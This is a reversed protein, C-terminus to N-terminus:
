SAAPSTLVVRDRGATKGAYLADDARRLAAGFGSADALDAIGATFTLPDGDIQVADRVRRRLRDIPELADEASTAPLVLLFEEGGWRAALDTARSRRLVDAFRQLVQDGREHGHEDNFRKFHDIDLIALAAPVAVSQLAGLAGTRNLLGTLADHNALYATRALLRARDIGGAVRNAVLGVLRREAATLPATRWWALGGEEATSTLPWTGDPPDEPPIGPWIYEEDGLRTRVHSAGLYRCLLRSTAAGLEDLDHATGLQESADYLTQLDRQRETLERTVTTLKAAATTYRSVDRLAVLVHPGDVGVTADWTAGEVTVVEIGTRPAGFRSRLKHWSPATLVTALSQTGLLERAAGNRELEAADSDFVILADPVHPYRSV